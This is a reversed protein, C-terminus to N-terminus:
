SCISYRGKKPRVLKNLVLDIKSCKRVKGFHKSEGKSLGGCPM